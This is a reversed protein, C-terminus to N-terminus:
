QVTFTFTAASSIGAAVAHITVSGPSAPTTYTVSALGSSSTSAATSSFSGGAGGDNYTVAVGSVANGYRDTVKVVLPQALPKNHTACHGSGSFVAINAPPGATVTASFTMGAIGPASATIKDNLVGATTSTTYNV